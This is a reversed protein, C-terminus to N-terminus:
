KKQWQPHLTLEGEDILFILNKAEGTAVKLNLFSNDKYNGKLFYFRSFQYLFTEEGSSLIRWNIDWFYESQQILKEYTELFSFDTNDIGLEIEYSNNSISSFNEIQKDSNVFIGRYITSSETNDSSLRYVKDVLEKKVKDHEDLAFDKKLNLVINSIEERIPNHENQNEILLSIILNM